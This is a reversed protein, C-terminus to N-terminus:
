TKLRIIIKGYDDNEGSQESVVTAVPSIYGGGGGGGAGNTAGEGGNAGTGGKGSMTFGGVQSNVDAAGATQNINYGSKYGRTIEASGSIEDGNPTRYKVSGLNDCAAKGQQRWYVGKTCAITRGGDTGTAVSDGYSSVTNTNVFGSVISGFVGTNSISSTSSSAGGDGAGTGGNGSSGGSNFSGGDGGKAYRGTQGGQGVVAVLTGGEYLFPTGINTSLGTIVYEQNQKLTMSLRGYGGKGGTGGLYSTNSPADWEDGRGGYLDIFVEIDKDPPYFSIIDDTYEGGVKTQFEYAGNRLNIQGADELGVGSNDIYEYNIMENGTGPVVNFTVKDSTVPTNTAGTFSVVCYVEQAAEFDSSITLTSSNTGSFTTNRQETSPTVVVYTYDLSGYGNGSNTFQSILNSRPDDYKSGGGNGNDGGRNRDYGFNGGGGGPSGGGGGGGGGGDPAYQGGHDGNSLPVPGSNPTFPKGFGTPGEPSRNPTGSRHSGGGGGGGGGAVIINGVGPVTLYSAAGAGGGHGSWGRVGAGGGRGGDGSGTVVGGAGGEGGDGNGGGSGQSGIRYKLTKGQFSPADLTFRGGRGAQGSGPPGRRDVGGGGGRAAVVQTEIDTASPPLSIDTDSSFTKSFPAPTNTTTDITVAKTRDTEAVGDIYWQYSLARGSGDSLNANITFTTSQNKAVVKTTPQSTINITPSITLGAKTSNLPENPPNGTQYDVQAPTYQAELYFERGDDTGSELNTVTLTSSTAGSIGSGNTLKTGSYPYDGTVYEYWQYDITGINEPSSVGFSVTALGVWTASGSSSTAESPQTAFSLYPGNLDLDTNIDKFIQNEM